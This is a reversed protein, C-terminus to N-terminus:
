SREAGRTQDNKRYQYCVQVGISFTVQGTLEKEGKNGVSVGCGGWSIFAARSKQINGEKLAAKGLEYTETPSFFGVFVGFV